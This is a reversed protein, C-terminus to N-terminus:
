TKIDFVLVKWQADRPLVGGVHFRGLMIAAAFLRVELMEEEFAIKLPDGVLHAGKRLLEDVNVTERPWPASCIGTEFVAREDNRDILKPLDAVSERRDTPVWLDTTDEDLWASRRIGKEFGGRAVDRVNFDPRDVFLKLLCNGVNKFEDTAGKRQDEDIGRSPGPEAQSLDLRDQPMLRPFHQHVEHEVM